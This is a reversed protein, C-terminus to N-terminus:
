NNTEKDALDRRIKNLFLGGGLLMLGALILLISPPLIGEFLQYMLTPAAFLVCLAGNTFIKMEFQKSSSVILIVGTLLLLVSGGLEYDLTIAFASCSMVVSSMLLGTDPDSFIKKSSLVFWSIGVVWFVSGFLIVSADPSFHDIISWCFCYLYCFTVSHLIATPNKKWGYAALSGGIASAIIVAVTEDWELVEAFLFWQGLFASSATLYQLLVGTARVFSGDFTLVKGSTYFSLATVSFFAITWSLSKDISFLESCGYFITGLTALVAIGTFFSGLRKLAQGSEPKLLKHGIVYFGVTLATLLFQQGVVSLEGWFDDMLTYMGSLIILGGVYALVEGSKSGSDDISQDENFQLSKEGEYNLIQVKSDEDLLGQETWEDLKKKIDNM